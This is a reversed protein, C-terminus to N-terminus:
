KEPLMGGDPVALRGKPYSKGFIEVADRLVVQDSPTAVRAVPAGDKEDVLLITRYPYKKGRIELGEKAAVVIVAGQAMQKGTVFYSGRAFGVPGNSFKTCLIFSEQGYVLGESSKGCGTFLLAAFTFVAILFSRKM